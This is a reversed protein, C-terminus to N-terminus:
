LSKVWVVVGYFQPRMIKEIFDLALVRGVLSLKQTVRHFKGEAAKVILYIWLVVAGLSASHPAHKGERTFCIQVDWVRKYPRLVIETGRQYFLRLTGCFRRLDSIKPSKEATELM